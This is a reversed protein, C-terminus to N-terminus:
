YAKSAMMGEIDEVSTLRWGRGDDCEYQLKRTESIYENNVRDLFTGDVRCANQGAPRVGDWKVLIDKNQRAFYRNYDRALFRGRDDDCPKFEPCTYRNTTSDGRSAAAKAASAAKSSQRAEIDMSRYANVSDRAVRRAEALVANTLLARQQEYENSGAKGIIDQTIKQVEAVAQDAAVKLEAAKAAAVSAHQAMESAEKDLDGGRAAQINGM